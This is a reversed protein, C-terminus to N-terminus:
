RNQQAAAPPHARHSGGSMQRVSQDHSPVVWYSTKAVILKQLLLFSIVKFLLLNLPACFSPTMPSVLSGDYFLCFSEGIGRSLKNKIILM